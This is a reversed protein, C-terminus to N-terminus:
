GTFLLLRASCHAHHRKAVVAMIPVLFNETFLESHALTLAIFGVSFALSAMVENHPAEKVLVLAFVGLAVDAGGVFGTAALTRLSRQLRIDGEDVTSELVSALQEDEDDGSPM